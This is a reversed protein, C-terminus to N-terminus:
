RVYFEPPEIGLLRLYTFGQGRHHIENELAYQLRAFHSMEPGFFPDQMVVNLREENMEEFLKRTQDRVEQSIQLFEEKKNAGEFVDKYEWKDLAVGHMYGSEINVIEKIMESFPRLKEDPTYVFFKDEPFAEIARLTLRRNGEMMEFYDKKSMIM